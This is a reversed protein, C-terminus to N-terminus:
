FEYLFVFYESVAPLVSYAVSVCSTLSQFIGAEPLPPRPVRFQLHHVVLTAARQVVLLFAHGRYWSAIGPDTCGWRRCSSRISSQRLSCPNSTCVIDALWSSSNLLSAKKPGIPAHTSPILPAQLLTWILKSCCKEGAGLTQTRSETGSWGGLRSLLYPQATSLGSSLCCSGSYYCYSPMCM